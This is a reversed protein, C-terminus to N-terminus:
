LPVAICLLSFSGDDHLHIFGLDFSLSFCVSGIDINNHQLYILSNALRYPQFLENSSTALLIAIPLSKERFVSEVYQSFM